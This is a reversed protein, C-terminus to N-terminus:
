TGGLAEARFQLARDDLPVVMRPRLYRHGEHALRIATGWARFEVIHSNFPLPREEVNVDVMGTGGLGLASSQMREMGEERAEYLATTMNTLEVNATSQRLVQGASRRAVRVFSAGFALGVPQWGAQHLLCFDRADLDSVFTWTKDAEVPRVATGTLVVEITHHSVVAELEVGVVGVGRHRDCEAQIRSVASAVAATYAETARDPDSVGVM